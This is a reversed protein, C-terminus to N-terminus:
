RDSTEMFTEFGMEQFKNLVMQYLGFMEKSRPTTQNFEKCIDFYGEYNISSRWFNDVMKEPGSYGLRQRLRGLARKANSAYSDEPYRNLVDMTATIVNSPTFPSPLSM